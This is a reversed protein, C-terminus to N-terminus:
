PIKEDTVFTVVTCDSSTSLLVSENSVAATSNKACSDPFSLESWIKGSERACGTFSRRSLKDKTIERRVTRQRVARYHEVWGKMTIEAEKPISRTPLSTMFKSASIPMGTQPVPYYSAPHTFYSRQSLELTWLM